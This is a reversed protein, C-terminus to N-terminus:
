QPSRSNTTSAVTAPKRLLRQLTQLLQESTFPKALLEVDGMESLQATRTNDILGSIAVVKLGPDLKRLARIAAFGDMYPMMLDIMVAAVRKRKEAFAAVAETGDSAIVSRYGNNELTVKIIQRIAAEDDVVLITESRGQPMEADSKERSVPRGSEVAPLYVKFCSGKGVESYVSLFGGHSRVIGLATSLGLGTGKGVEKTTFFPEFIKSLAAPEIGTGSDAFSAIVYRGPKADPQMRAYNEDIEVNRAEIRAIGGHPMADRANVALNMFVQHLQTADGTVPWLDSPLYSKIQVTPPFVDRCIRLVENLPHRLDLVTKEGEVGRAFSLVQQVISAGRLASTELTNLVEAPANGKLERLLRLSVLIPTLVNNLDHAIGGALTGISELRQARLFHAELKKKETVDTNFILISKPQNENDRVLSWRSEVVIERKDRTVQNLEGQWEGSVLTADFAETHVKPDPHGLIEAKIQGVSEQRPWGYLREASSNWFTVTGSLDIAMIADRAKDMLAAQERIRDEAVQRETVDRSNIVIGGVSPNRVLNRFVSELYRWSGNKCLFRYQIPHSNSEDNEARLAALATTRDNPHVFDSYKKGVLDEAAYGLSRELSPSAFQVSEDEAVITIIDSSAHILSRFHEERRRLVAEAEEREKEARKKQVSGLLASPLRKLSSKLIYDDAGEQICQVAVEESQSGTVLIFPISMRRAKLAKLADLADFQPMSFDSIIADPPNERLEQLFSKKTAVCRAILPVEARKLEYKILEADSPNDEILLIRLAPHTM